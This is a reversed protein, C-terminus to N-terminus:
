RVTVITDPVNYVKFGQFSLRVRQSAAMGNTLEVQIQGGPLYLRARYLEVAPNEATGFLNALPTAQDMQQKGSSSDIIKVLMPALRPSTNTTNGTASDWIEALYKICVFYSDNQVNANGTQTVGAGIANFIVNYSFPEKYLGELGKPIYDVNGVLAAGPPPALGMDMMGPMTTM